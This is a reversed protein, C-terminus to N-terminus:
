TSVVPLNEQRWAALGGSIVQVQEIGAQRLRRAAAGSQTGTACCVLLPKGRQKRLRQEAQDLEAVPINIADRIHSGAFEEPKRVDVVVAGERNILLVAAQPAIGGAASMLNAILIGAVACFATVLIWHNVVFESLQDM